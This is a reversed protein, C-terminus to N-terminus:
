TKLRKISKGALVKRDVQYRIDAPSWDLTTVWGQGDFLSEDQDIKFPFLVTAGGQLDLSLYQAAQEDSGVPPPDYLGGSAGPPGFLAIERESPAYGEKRPWQGLRERCVIGM